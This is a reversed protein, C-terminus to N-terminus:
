WADVVFEGDFFWTRCGTKRLVGLLFVGEGRRFILGLFIVVSGMVMAPHGGGRGAELGEGVLVVGLL